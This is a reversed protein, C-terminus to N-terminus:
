GAFASEQTLDCARARCNVVPFPPQQSPMLAERSRRVPSRLKQTRATNHMARDDEESTMSAAKNGRWNNGGGSKVIFVEEEIIPLHVPQHGLQDRLM